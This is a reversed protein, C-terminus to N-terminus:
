QEGWGELGCSAGWAGPRMLEIDRPGNSARRGPVLRAPRALSDHGSVRERAAVAPSTSRVRDSGALAAADIVRIDDPDEALTAGRRSHARARSLPRVDEPVRRRIDFTIECV